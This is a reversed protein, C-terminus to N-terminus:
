FLLLLNTLFIPRKEAYIVPHFAAHILTVDHQRLILQQSRSDMVHRGVVEM